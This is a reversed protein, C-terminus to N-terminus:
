NARSGSIVSSPPRNENSGRLTHFIQAATHSSVNLCAATGGTEEFLRSPALGGIDFQGVVAETSLLPDGAQGSKDRNKQDPRRKDPDRRKKDPLVPKGAGFEKKPAGSRPTQKGRNERDPRKNPVACGM